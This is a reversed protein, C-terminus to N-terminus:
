HNGKTGNPKDGPDVSELSALRRDIAELKDTIRQVDPNPPGGGALMLGLLRRAGERVQPDEFSFFDGMPDIEETEPNNEGPDSETLSKAETICEDIAKQLDALDAGMAELVILVTSIAPDGQGTELRSMTEARIDATEAVAKATLARGDRKISKRLRRIGPGIWPKLVPDPSM